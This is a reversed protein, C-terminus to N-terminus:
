RGSIQINTRINERVFYPTHQEIQISQIEDFIDERIRKRAVCIIIIPPPWQKGTIIIYERSRIGGGTCVTQNPPSVRHTKLDRLLDVRKKM